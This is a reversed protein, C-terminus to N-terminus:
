ARRNRSGARVSHSVCRAESRNKGKKGRVACQKLCFALALSPFRSRSKLKKQKVDAGRKKTKVYKPESLRWHWHPSFPSLRRPLRTFPLAARLSVLLLEPSLSQLFV